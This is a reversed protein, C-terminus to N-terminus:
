LEDYPDRLNGMDQNEDELEELYKKDEEIRRRDKKDEEKNWEEIKGRKYEKKEEMRKLFPNRNYRSFPNKKWRRWNKEMRRWYERNYRKNGWRYLLKAMYREPLERSFIKRDEEAEQRRAEEEERRGYEREFEEVLEIVNKLNERSEWTDEEATCKKWRVLYKDRGRVRRKNMIRKVEWEEEEEIVVPQPAEKRQGKVQLKYKWVRSVNVVPHIKVMSPLELEIANSSVIAKVRYPGVFRKTFKETHRGVMQYKLDKTSLLVLDGVQYEEVEGRERDAYRKMEEQVKQLAAKTEEQVSRMKEAFKEAGEYKGKKRMEFGIRPDQGQNVKFPSVKTGTHVKNNYAFEATGL